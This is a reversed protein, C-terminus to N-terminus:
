FSVGCTRGGGLIRRTSIASGGEQNRVGVAEGPARDWYVEEKDASTEKSWENGACPFCSGM